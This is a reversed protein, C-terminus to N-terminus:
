LLSRFPLPLFLFFFLLVYMLGFDFKPIKGEKCCAGSAAVYLATNFMEVTRQEIEREDPQVRVRSAIKVLAEKVEPRGLFAHYMQDGTRPRRAAERLTETNRMEELLETISTNGQEQSSSSTAREEAESLYGGLQEIRGHVAAQALGEAIIAPQQFEVGYMLQILPHILGAFLRVLMRADEDGDGARTFLYKTLVEEEPHANLQDQFFRLFDPYYAEKGLFDKAHVWSQFFLPSSSSASANEHSPM